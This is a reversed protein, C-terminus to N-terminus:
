EAGGRITGQGLAQHTTLADLTAEGLATNDFIFYVAAGRRAAAAAKAHWAALREPGYASYYIRPSGHLRFYAVRRAGAAEGDGPGRPPDAAVRAFGHEELCADGEGDFWSRHRPEFAIPAEIAGGLLRAARRVYAASFARSPPLQVLLCGFKAGLEGSSEVFPGLHERAAAAFDDAHSIDRPLKLTFRFDDPTSAAWRAYTAPRHPRYFCSNIEVTGFVRAYRELQSGGGSFVNESGKPLGWSATGVYVRAASRAGEARAGAGGKPPVKPRPSTRERPM